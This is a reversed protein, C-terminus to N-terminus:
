RMSKEYADEEEYPDVEEIKLDEPNIIYYDESEEMIGGL